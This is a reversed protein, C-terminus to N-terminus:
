AVIWLLDLDSVPQGKIHIDGTPIQGGLEKSIREAITYTGVIEAYTQAPQEGPALGRLIQNPNQIKQQIRVLAGTEYVKEQRSTVFWVRAVLATALVVIFLRHRWIARYVDAITM